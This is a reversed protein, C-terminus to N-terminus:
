MISLLELLPSMCSQRGVEPQERGGGDGDGGLEEPEM